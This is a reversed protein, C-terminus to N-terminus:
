DDSKDALVKVYQAMEYINLTVVTLTIFNIGDEKM